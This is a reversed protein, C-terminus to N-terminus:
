RRSLPRAPGAKAKPAKRSRTAKAGPASTVRRWALELLDIRAATAAEIRAADGSEIALQSEQLSGASEAIDDLGRIAAMRVADMRRLLVDMMKIVVSNQTARAVAINFRTSAITMMLATEHSVTRSRNSASVTFSLEVAARMREFDAETGRQAAVRAVQPEFWRRAEIVAAIDEGPLDPLPYGALEAPVSESIVFLGGSSGPLVQVLGAHVLLKIAERLTPRSIGLQGSLAQETPLREGVKVDGALIAETIRFAVVEAPRVMQAPAFVFTTPPVRAM